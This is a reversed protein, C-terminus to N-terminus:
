SNEYHRYEPKLEWKYRNAVGKSYLGIEQLVSKVITVPQKSVSVLEKLTYYQHKEFAGFLTDRVQNRNLYVKDCEFVNKKIKNPGFKSMPKFSNVARDLQIITGKPKNALNFKLQKIKMYKEDDQPECEARKIIEGKIERVDGDIKESMLYQESVSSVKVKYDMPYTNNDLHPSLKLKINQNEIEIDGVHDSESNNWADAIYNPIKVLWLQNTNLKAEFFNNDM